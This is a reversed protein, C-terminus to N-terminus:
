ETEEDVPWNRLQCVCGKRNAWALSRMGLDMSVTAVLTWEDPTGTIEPSFEMPCVRVDNDPDVKRLNHVM